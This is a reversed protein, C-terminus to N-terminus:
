KLYVRRIKLGAFRSHIVFHNLLPQFIGNREFLVVADAQKVMRLQSVYRAVKPNPDDEETPTFVEIKHGQKRAWLRAVTACGPQNTTLITVNKINKTLHDLKKALLPLYTFDTPGAVIIKM